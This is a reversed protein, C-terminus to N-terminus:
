GAANLLVPKISDGASNVWNQDKSTVHADVRERRRLMAFILFFVRACVISHKGSASIVEFLLEEIAM